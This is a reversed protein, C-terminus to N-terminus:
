RPPPCAAALMTVTGDGQDAVAIDDRPSDDRSLVVAAVPHPGTSVSTDGGVVEVEGVDYEAVAWAVPKQEYDTAFARPSGRLPTESQLGYEGAMFHFPSYRQVSNSGANAVYISLQVDIAVASPAVNTALV